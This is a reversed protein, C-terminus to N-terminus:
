IKLLHTLNQSLTSFTSFVHITTKLFNSFTSFTQLIIFYSSSIQSFTILVSMTHNCNLFCALLKMTHLLINSNIIHELIYYIFLLFTYLIITIYSILLTIFPSLNLDFYTFLLYRLSCM